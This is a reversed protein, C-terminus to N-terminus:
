SSRKAVRALGRRAADNEPDRRLAERYARIAGAVDQMAELARGRGVHAAIEEDDLALAEDFETLAEEYRGLRGLVLGRRVHTGSHGPARELAAAYSTAARDWAEIREYARGLRYHRVAREPELEVALRYQEVAEDLRDVETLAEAYDDVADATGQAGAVSALLELRGRERRRDFEDVTRDALRRWQKAVAMDDGILQEVYVVHNVPDWAEVGEMARAMDDFSMTDVLRKMFRKFGRRHVLRAMHFELAPYDLTNLPVTSERVLELPRTSLLGFPIWRAPLGHEVFFYDRLMPDRAVVEPQRVALPDPSCLLLYYSGRIAGLWCHEFSDAITKLIIEAGVTGVRSDMWTVYVGGPALRSRVARLFERTYLKSSSFYLPTTVTNIILSYSGSTSKVFHIGDDQVINVSEREEIDFNYESMRFLNELVVPSIEVADTRDFLVGVTGATAGSGVGLVLARDTRPAFVSSFAGVLKESPSNLPISLYGNIFFWPEGNKRNISFVDQYGKFTEPLTMLSRARKFERIHNFATHGLYLLTEDWVVGQAVVAAVVLAAAVLARRDLRGVYLFLGAGALAVIVLLIWGYELHRHLVLAMLLFGVANALSSVCLLQGSERAVNRQVTLLAPITSGFATAPLGMLLALTVLKYATVAPPYIGAVAPYLLAYARTFLPFGAVVVLMGVLAATVVQGFSLRYTETLTSGLAIGLFILALVLAFTERFPGFLCEAMKVMLLQFVASAVSALALAVLFRGPYRAADAPRPRQGRLRGFGLLLSLAVFGNISAVFLVANTLGFLRLLLFEILLVTLAAGFNYVTYARAFVRGSDLRSLYGAFLPLSTGIAFAPLCLLFFCILISAGIGSGLLPLTGYLWRDLRDAGLAFLVGCGGICAELLWLYSWLRHALLTGVGIGLLFTLLIAASVAFQDGVLNGLLRAYLVEYSIGCFGSLLLLFAFFRSHSAGVRQPHTHHAIEIGRSTGPFCISIGEGGRFDFVSCGGLTDLGGPAM